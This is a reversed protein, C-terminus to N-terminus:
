TPWRSAMGVVRASSTVGSPDPPYTGLAVPLNTRTVTVDGRLGNKGNTLPVVRVTLATATAPASGKAWNESPDDTAPSSVRFDASSAMMPGISPPTFM